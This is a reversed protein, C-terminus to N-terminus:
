TCEDDNNIEFCVKKDFNYRKKWDIHFLNRKSMELASYCMFSM